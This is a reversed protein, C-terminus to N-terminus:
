FSASRDEPGNTEVHPNYALLVSLSSERPRRIGSQSFIGGIECVQTMMFSPNQSRQFVVFVEYYSLTTYNYIIFLRELYLFL